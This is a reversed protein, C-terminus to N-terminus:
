FKCTIGFQIVPFIKFDKLDDNISQLEKDIEAQLGPVTKTTTLTVAPIGHYLIGLDTFFGWHGKRKIPNNFGIGFYPATRKFKLKAALQGITQASYEVDGIRITNAGTPQGTATVENLNVAVGGGIRFWNKFPFLDLAIPVAGLKLKGQYNIGKEDFGTSYSFASMGVRFNLVRPVISRSLDAGVGLTGAKASFAWGSGGGKQEKDAAAAALSVSLVLILVAFARKMNGVEPKFHIGEAGGVPVFRV